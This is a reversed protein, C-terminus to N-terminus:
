RKYDILKQLNNKHEETQPTGAFNYYNFLIIKMDDTVENDWYSYYVTATMSNVRSKFLRQLEKDFDKYFADQGNINVSFENHLFKQITMLRQKGDIVYRVSNSKDLPKKNPGFEHEVIIVSEIPKELLLSLIFENQQFHEWVYPRQLNMEYKKLYVDFDYNWYMKDSTELAEALKYDLVINKNIGISKPIKHLNTTRRVDNITIM